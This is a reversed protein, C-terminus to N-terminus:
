LRTGKRGGARRKGSWSEKPDRLNLEGIRRRSVIPDENFMPRLLRTIRKGNGGGWGESWGEHEGKLFTPRSGNKTRGEGQTRV